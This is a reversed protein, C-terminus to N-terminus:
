KDIYKSHGASHVVRVRSRKKWDFGTAKESMIYIDGHNVVVDVPSHKHESSRPMRWQYRVTSSAGLSLCIVIKREADGHFGIGAKSHHYHNGEANLNVAKAGCIDGLLVKIKHLFPVNSFAKVSCQKYDDSHAIETEWFVINERARKNLTRKRRVDWYKKNYNVGGKQEKLLNDAFNKSVPITEGEVGSSRIVLIGAENDPRLHVPLKESISIFEACDGLTNKLRILEEVSFGEERIGKGFEKGGVHLISVEGFTIAYRDKFGMEEKSYM